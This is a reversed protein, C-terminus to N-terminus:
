HDAEPKPERSLLDTLAERPDKGQYLVAYAEEILPTEIKERQALSRISETNPVGEAVTAMSELIADLKEGKGLRRGVTGNRSHQSYCTVILDGVGSLGQFTEFSGGLARGLRSMEALGRTVFAAKANDGLGLGECIGAGIAYVNKVAGGIEIGVIDTSTYSRFWPLSFIEQLELAIDPDASGIVAASPLRLAVEEAHNPGSLTAIGHGPFFEAVIESMRKGSGSEIGKSCTLFIAGEAVGVDALAEAVSRTAKSPLVFLILGAEAVAAGLDTTASIDRPLTVGPLYRGNGSMSNIEDAVAEERGWMVVRRGASAIAFALATGWCGSGLIAVKEISETSM